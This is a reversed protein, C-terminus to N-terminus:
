QRVQLAYLLAFIGGLRRLSDLFLVKSASVMSFVAEMLAFCVQGFCTLLIGHLLSLDYYQHSHSAQIGLAVWTDPVSAAMDSFQNM